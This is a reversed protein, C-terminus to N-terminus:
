STWSLDPSPRSSALKQLASRRDPPSVCTGVLARTAAVADTVLQQTQERTAMALLENGLRTFRTAHEILSDGFHTLDFPQLFGLWIAPSNNTKAVAGIHADTFTARGTLLEAESRFDLFAQWLREWRLRKTDRRSAAMQWAITLLSPIAAVVLGPLLAILTETV